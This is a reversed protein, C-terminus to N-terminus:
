SANDLLHSVSVPATYHHDTLSEFGWGKSEYDLARDLQALPGHSPCGGEAYPSPM